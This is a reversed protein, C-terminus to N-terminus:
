RGRPCATHCPVEERKDVRGSYPSITERYCRGGDNVIRIIKAASEWGQCQVQTAAQALRVNGLATAPPKDAAFAANLLPSLWTTTQNIQDFAIWEYTARGDPLTIKISIDGSLPCAGINIKSGKAAGIEKYDIKCDGNRVWLDYQALKHSVQTYPIGHRWSHYLNVATPLAGLVPVGIAVARILSQWRNFIGLISNSPAAAAVGNPPQGTMTNAEENSRLTAFM